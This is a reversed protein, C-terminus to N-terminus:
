LLEVSDASVSLLQYLTDNSTKEFHLTSTTKLRGSLQKDLTVTDGAQWAKMYLTWREGTHRAAKRMGQQQVSAPHKPNVIGKGVCYFRGGEAHFAADLLQKMPDTNAPNRLVEDELPLLINLLSDYNSIFILDSQVTKETLATQTPKNRAREETEERCFLFCMCPILIVTLFPTRM